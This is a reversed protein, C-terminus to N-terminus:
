VHARGIENWYESDDKIKEIEIDVNPYHKQFKGVMDNQEIFDNLNNDWITFTLSAKLDEKKDGASTDDGSDSPTDASVDEKGNEDSSDEKKNGCGALAGICLVCVLLAAWWRQKMKKM